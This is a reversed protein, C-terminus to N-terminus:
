SVSTLPGTSFSVHDVHHSVNIDQTRKVRPVSCTPTATPEFTFAGLCGTSGCTGTAATDEGESSGRTIPCRECSARPILLRLSAVPWMSRGPVFSVRSCCKSQGVLSFDQGDVYEKCSWLLGKSTVAHKMIMDSTALDCEALSWEFLVGRDCSIRSNHDEWVQLQARVNDPM